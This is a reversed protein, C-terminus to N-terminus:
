GCQVTGVLSRIVDWGAPAAYLALQPSALAYGGTRYSQTGLDIYGGHRHTTTAWLAGAGGGLLGLSLLVLM